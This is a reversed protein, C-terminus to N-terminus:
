GWDWGFHYPAKRTFMSVMPTAQDNNAPLTYGLHDYAAKVHTIPSRLRVLLTNEGKRLRPKVAVRWSRFMNDATLVSAGNVFVEAYTDLGRFDLEIKERSLLGEDVSFTTRYEWDVKDIWQQDKENQGFFPDAIKRNALLDTHVCGPVTAPMWGDDPSSGADAPPAGGTAPIRARTPRGARGRRGRAAAPRM